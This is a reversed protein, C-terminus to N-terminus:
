HFYMSLKTVLIIGFDKKRNRELIQKESQLCSIKLSRLWFECFEAPPASPTPTRPLHNLCIWRETLNLDTMLFIRFKGHIVEANKNQSSVKDAIIQRRGTWQCHVFSSGKAVESYM